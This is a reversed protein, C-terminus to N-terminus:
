FRKLKKLKGFDYVDDAVIYVSFNGLDKKLYPSLPKEKRVDSGETVPNMSPMAILNRRKWKGCLFCKYTESRLDMDLSVAPHEHGIVITKVSPPLEIEKDGHVIAVDGIVFETVLMVNRKDAIPGLIKDHNGQVLVVRKGKRLLYDLMKITNRWEEDSIRGFEHKLDGNIVVVSVERKTKALFKFIGEVRTVLDRFHHKPILVGQRVLSDEYGIHLDAMALTKESPIYLALDIIEIGDLIEIPKM